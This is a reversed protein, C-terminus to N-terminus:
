SWAHPKGLADCTCGELSHARVADTGGETAAATTLQVLHEAVYDDLDVVQVTGSTVV